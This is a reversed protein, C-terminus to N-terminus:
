EMIFFINNKSLENKYYSNKFSNIIHLMYTEDEGVYKNIDIGLRVIDLDIRYKNYEGLLDCDWYLWYQEDTINYNEKHNDCKFIGDEYEINLLYNDKTFVEPHYHIVRFCDDNKYKEDLKDSLKFFDDRCFMTLENLEKICDYINDFLVNKKLTFIFIDKNKKFEYSNLNFYKSLHKKIVEIDEKLVNEESYVEIKVPIGNALRRGM